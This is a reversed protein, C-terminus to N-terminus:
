VSGRNSAVLCCKKANDSINDDYVQWNNLLCFFIKGRDLFFRWQM